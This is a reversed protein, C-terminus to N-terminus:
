ISLFESRFISPRLAWLCPSTGILCSHLVPLGQPLTTSFAGRPLESEVEVKCKQWGLTVEGIVEAASGRGGSV